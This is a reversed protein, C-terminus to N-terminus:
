GKGKTRKEWATVAANLLGPLEKSKKDFDKECAVYRHVKGAGELLHHPDALEAGRVIGLKVGKQSLIITCILGAYGPGLGYGIVRGTADLEERLSPNTARIIARLKQATKQVAVPYDKLFEDVASM